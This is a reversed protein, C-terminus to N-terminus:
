VYKKYYSYLYIDIREKKKIYRKIFKKFYIKYYVKINIDINM